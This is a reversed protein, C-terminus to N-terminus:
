RLIEYVEYVVCLKLHRLVLLVNLNVNICSKVLAYWNPRSYLIRAFLLLMKVVTSPGLYLCQYMFLAFTYRRLYYTSSNCYETVSEGINRYVFHFM